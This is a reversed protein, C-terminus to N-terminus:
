NWSITVDVVKEISKRHSTSPLESKTINDIHYGRKIFDNIMYEFYYLYIQDTDNLKLSSNWLKRTENVLYPGIFRMGGSGAAQTFSCSLYGCKAVDAITRNIRIIISYVEEEIADIAIQHAQERDM